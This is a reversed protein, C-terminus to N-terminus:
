PALVDPPTAPDPAPPPAFATGDHTWGIRPYDLNEPSTEIYDASPGGWLNALFQPADELADATTHMEIVTSSDIRAYTAM